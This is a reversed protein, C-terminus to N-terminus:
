STEKAVFDAITDVSRIIFRGPNQDDIRVGYKRQLAMVIELADVSDIQLSNEGEFLSASDDIDEPKVDPIKLADIILEKIEHKLEPTAEAAM